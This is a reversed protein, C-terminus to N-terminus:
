CAMDFSSKGSYSQMESSSSVLLEKLNGALKNLLEKVKPDSSEEAKDKLENMCEAIQERNEPSFQSPKKEGVDKAMSKLSDLIEKFEEPHEKALKLLDQLLNSGDSNTAKSQENQKGFVSELMEGPNFLKGLMELGNVGKSSGAKGIMNGVLNMAIGAVAGIM